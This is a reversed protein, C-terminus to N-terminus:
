NCSVGAAGLVSAVMVFRNCVQSGLATVAGLIIVAILSAILVYEISTAGEENILFRWGEVFVHRM